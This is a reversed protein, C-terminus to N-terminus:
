KVLTVPLPSLHMVKYAVSGLMMGTVASRGRTGMVIRACHLENALKVIEEATDGTLVRVSFPTGSNNLADSAARLAAERDENQRSMRMEESILGRVYGEPLTPQVNLLEVQVPKSGSKLGCVFHAARMAHESGDVALLIRHVADAARPSQVGKLPPVITVPTTAHHIIKYAVSGLADGLRNKSRSGMVIEDVREEEAMRAIVAAPEGLLTTLSNPLRAADLIRRADETAKRGQTEYDPAAANEGALEAQEDISQVNLVYIADLKLASSCGALYEAARQSPESGDIPLLVRHAHSQNMM